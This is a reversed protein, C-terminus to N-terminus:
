SKLEAIKITFPQKTKSSPLPYCYHIINSTNITYDINKEEYLSDSSYNFYRLRQLNFLRIYEAKVLIKATFKKASKESAINWVQRHGYLAKIGIKTLESYFNTRLEGGLGKKRHNRHITIQESWAEDQKTIVRLKLLPIIGEGLTALNFGAVKNDMIVAMCIGNTKLRNRIKGKLWEEMKEIQKIYDNDKANILQFTYGRDINQKKVVNKLNLEYLIFTKRHYIPKLLLSLSKSLSTKVGYDTINRYLKKQHFKIRDFTKFINTEKEKIISNSNVTQSM